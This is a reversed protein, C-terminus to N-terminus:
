SKTPFIQIRTRASQYYAGEAAKLREEVFWRQFQTRADDFKQAHFPHNSTRFVERLEEESPYLIPTIMRHIYLAARARRILVADIEHTTIGELAAQQTLAAEGGLRLVLGARMESAIRGLEAADPPHELPLSALIEETVHREIAARVHREQYAKYSPDEAKAELRAEFALLRYSIFRPKASGGSEPAFFRVATGDIMKGTPADAQSTSAHLM